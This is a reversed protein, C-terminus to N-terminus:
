RRVSRSRTLTNKEVSLNRGSSSNGNYLYSQSSQNSQNSYMGNGSKLYNVDFNTSRRMENTNQGINNPIYTPKIAVQPKQVNGYNGLPNSLNSGHRFNSSYNQNSVTPKLNLTSSSLSNNQNFSSINNKSTGYGTFKSNGKQCHECFEEYKKNFKKCYECIWEQFKKNGNNTLSSGKISSNLDYKNGPISKIKNSSLNSISSNLSSNSHSNNTIMKNLSSGLPIPNKNIYNDHYSRTVIRSADLVSGCRECTKKSSYNTYNCNCIIFTNEQQSIPPAKHPVSPNRKIQNTSTIPETSSYLKDIKNNVSYATSDFKTAKLNFEKHLNINSDIKTERERNNSTISDNGDIRKNVSKNRLVNDLNKQNDYHNVQSSTSNKLYNFSNSYNTRNRDMM